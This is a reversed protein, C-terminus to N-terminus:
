AVAKEVPNGMHDRVDVPVGDLYLDCALRPGRPHEVVALVKGGPGATEIATRLIHGLATFTFRPPCKGKVRRPRELPPCDPDLTGLDAVLRAPEEGSRVACITVRSCGQGERIATVKRITDRDDYRAMDLAPKLDVTVVPKSPHDSAVLSREVLARGSKYGASVEIRGYGDSILGAEIRKEARTLTMHGRPARTVLPKGEVVPAPYTEFSTTHTVPYFAGIKRPIRAPQHPTTM